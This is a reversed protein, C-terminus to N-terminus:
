ARGVTARANEEIYGMSQNKELAYGKKGMHLTLLADLGNALLLLLVGFIINEPLGSAFLGLALSWMVLAGMVEFTGLLRHGLYIDGLGPLLLSRLAAKRPSKFIAGCESCANLAAGLPTFCSPCLHDCRDAPAAISQQPTIRPAIWDKMHSALSRKIGNFIRRKAQKRNLILSTGFLGKACKEISGFPFQFFYHTAKTMRSNTNIAVVRKDTAVLVYRNYLLTLWGNGLVIEWPYYAMAPAVRAVREDPALLRDLAPKVADLLKMRLRNARTQYRGKRTPVLIETMDYHRGSYSGTQPFCSRIDAPLSPAPQAVAPPEAALPEKLTDTSQSLAKVKIRHSCRKCTLVAGQAPVKNDPIRYLANCKPCVVEM